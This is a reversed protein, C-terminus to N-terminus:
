VPFCIVFVDGWHGLQQDAGRPCYPDSFWSTREFAQRPRCAEAVPWLSARHFIMNATDLVPPHLSRLYQNTFPKKERLSFFYETISTWVQSFAVVNHWAAIRCQWGQSCLDVPLRGYEIGYFISTQGYIDTKKVDVKFHILVKAVEWPDFKVLFLNGNCSALPKCLSWFSGLAM